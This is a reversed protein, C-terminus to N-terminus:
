VIMLHALHDVFMNSSCKKIYKKNQQELTIVLYTNAKM